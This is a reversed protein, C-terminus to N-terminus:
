MINYSSTSNSGTNRPDLQTTEQENKIPPHTVGRLLAHLLVLSPAVAVPLFLFLPSLRLPAAISHIVGGFLHVMWADIGM